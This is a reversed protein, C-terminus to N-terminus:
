VPLEWGPAYDVSLLASAAPNNRITGSAVDYDVKSATRLAINGMLVMETFPGAYDFSSCAPDGGKCAEIWNRYHSGKVRPLTEEPMEFDKMRIDPLLRTKMGYTGTTMVGESGVVFSGNDGDGLKDSNPVGAPRQPMKGGDYWYFDVPPMGAREPFSYKLVSGTPTLLDSQGEELITEV